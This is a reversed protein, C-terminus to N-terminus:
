TDFKRTSNAIINLFEPEVSHWDLLDTKMPLESDSLLLSLEQMKSFPLPVDGKLIIDLDSHPGATGKARSGFIFIEVNPFVSKILNTAVQSHKLSIQIPKSPPSNRFSFQRKSRSNKQLKTSMKQQKGVTLTLLSTERETFSLGIKPNQSSDSRPEREFCTEFQLSEAAM